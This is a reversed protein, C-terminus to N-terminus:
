VHTRDFDLLLLSPRITEVLALAAEGDGRSLRCLKECSHPSDCVFCRKLHPCFAKEKFKCDEFLCQTLNSNDRKERECVYCLNQRIWKSDFHGGCGMCIHLQKRRPPVREIVSKDYGIVRTRRSGLPPPWSESAIAINMTPILVKDLLDRSRAIFNGLQFDKPVFLCTNNSAADDGALFLHSETAASHNVNNSDSTESPVENKGSWLSAIVSVWRANEECAKLMGNFNHIKGLRSVAESLLHEVENGDELGREAVTDVLNSHSTEILKIVKKLRDPLTAVCKNYYQLEEVIALAKFGGRAAISLSLFYVAEEPWCLDNQVKDLIRQMATSGKVAKSGERENENESQRGVRM